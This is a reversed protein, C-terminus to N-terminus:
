RVLTIQYGGRNGAHIYTNPITIYDIKPIWTTDSTTLM